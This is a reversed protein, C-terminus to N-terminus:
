LPVGLLSSSAAARTACSSEIWRSSDSDEEESDGGGVLMVKGVGVTGCWECTVTLVADELALTWATALPSAEDWCHM